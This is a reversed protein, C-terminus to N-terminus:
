SDINKNAIQHLYGEAKTKYNNMISDYDNAIRTIFAMRGNIYNGQKDKEGIDYLNESPLM